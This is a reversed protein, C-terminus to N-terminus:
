NECVYGVESVSDPRPTAGGFCPYVSMGLIPKMDSVLSAIV